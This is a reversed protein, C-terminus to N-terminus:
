FAPRRPQVLRFTLRRLTLGATGGFSILKVTEREEVWREESGGWWDASAM